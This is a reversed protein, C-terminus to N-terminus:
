SLVAGIVNAHAVRLSEVAPTIQERKAHDREAVLVTSQAARAWILSEATRDVPSATVLVLDADALLQKMTESAQASDLPDTSRRPRVVLLQPRKIRFRDFMLKGIRLPRGRQIAETGSGDSFLKLVGGREDADVLAVRNGGEAFGAALNAAIRGSSRGGPADILVLSRVPAGGNSLEIKTTLLRYSAAAASAPDAEVVIPKNRRWVPSGNVSGLVPTYPALDEESRVVTSLSDVLVAIGFAGLLGVIATLAVILGTGPGIPESPPTALEVVRIQGEQQAFRARQVLERALANAIAAARVRDGDRATITIIRTVDSATAAHIKSRISTLGVRRGAADLIPATTALAAYTRTQAGAVDIQDKTASLPGVLLKAEAEYTDPLRNAVLYGMVAAVTAGILLLWWWRKVVALVGSL